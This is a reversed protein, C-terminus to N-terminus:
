IVVVERLAAAMGVAHIRGLWHAVRPQWHPHAPLATGWIGSFALFAQAVGAAAVTSAAGTRAATARLLAAQPDNMWYSVGNEDVEQAYRMWAAAAFALCEVPGGRALQALAAPEWRQPIKQSSDTAIQHVRHALTPNAFRLLLADRYAELGPRALCPMVEQTMLRHIFAHLDPQRICQDVTQLGLVAGIVAIASHSGNLLRLKATEYASVDDVVQVGVSRLAAADSPDMFRDEIVWEWFVETALACDDQLGLAQAADLRTQATPAPVIRDVMSSPFACHAAIWDALAPDVTRAHEVCLRQLLAGNHSLNDCSALTLGGLGQRRRQALGRVVLAALAPGYGKETVTLTVWRTSPAALAATVRQPERAAVCTELISAVVQWQRGESQSTCVSYVGGQVALADALDTSRMAVGLVGWPTQTKSMLQEFVLAQHARHFSGLGLHVVGLRVPQRQEDSLTAPAPGSNQPATARTLRRM